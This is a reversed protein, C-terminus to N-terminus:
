IQPCERHGLMIIEARSTLIERYTDTTSTSVHPNGGTINTKINRVSRIDTWKYGLVTTRIDEDYESTDTILGM